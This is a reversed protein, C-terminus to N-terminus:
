RDEKFLPLWVDEVQMFDVRVPMCIALREIATDVINTTICLGAQEALEVIAIVYPVELAPHWAQHNITYTLVSALGSVPRPGVQWSLCVPCIPAPPHFYRNCDPCFHINLRGSRGGQWFHANDADILPLKRQM